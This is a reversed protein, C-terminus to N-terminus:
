PKGEGLRYSPDGAPPMTIAPAYKAAIWGVVRSAPLPDLQALLKDIRAMAMLEADTTRTGAKKESM